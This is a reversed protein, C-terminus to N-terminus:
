RTTKSPLPPATTVISDDTDVGLPKAYRSLQPAPAAMPLVSWNTFINQPVPSSLVPDNAAGTDSIGLLRALQASQSAQASKALRSAGREIGLANAVDVAAVERGQASELWLCALVVWPASDEALWRWVSRETVRLFKAAQAPTAHHQVLLDRLDSGHLTKPTYTKM